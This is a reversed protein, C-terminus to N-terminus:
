FPIQEETEGEEANTAELVVEDLRHRYLATRVLVASPVPAASNKVCRIWAKELRSGAKYIPNITLVVNPKQESLSQAAAASLNNGGARIKEAEDKKVQSAVVTVLDFDVGFQWIEGLILELEAWNDARQQAKQAYDIFLASVKRGQDRLERVRDGAAKLLKSIPGKAHDIWHVQGPWSEFRAILENMLKQERDAMQRGHGRIGRAQDAVWLQHLRQTDYSPGGWGAIARMQYEVPSWEPGWALIDHGELCLGDACTELMATKGMGSGSVILILKRAEWLAALGGLQRLPKYPAPIPLTISVREGRLIAKYEALAERSSVIRVQPTRLRRPVPKARQGPENILKEVRQRDEWVDRAIQTVDIGLHHALETWKRLQGAHKGQCGGIMGTVPDFLFDKGEPGHELPCAYYGAAKGRKVLRKEIEALVRRKVEDREGADTALEPSLKLAPGPEPANPGDYWLRFDAVSYSPSHHLQELFVGADFQVHQWLDNVDIKDDVQGIPLRRLDLDIDSDKLREIVKSASRFGAEDLDPLYIVRRVGLQALDEALTAPVNGEGFWSLVNPLGAAHYTWLDVEGAAIYLLGLAAEVAERLGPLVYYTPREPKGKYLWAYKPQASSDANKWRAVDTMEGDLTFTPYRWGPAGKYTHAKIGAKLMIPALGRDKLAQSLHATQQTPTM